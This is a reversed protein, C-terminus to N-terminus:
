KREERMSQRIIKLWWKTIPALLVIATVIIMKEGREKDRTSIQDEHLREM